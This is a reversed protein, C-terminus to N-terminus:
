CHTYLASEVVSQASQKSLSPRVGIPVVAVRLGNIWLSSVRMAIGDSEMVM